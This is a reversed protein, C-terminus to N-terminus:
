FCIVSFWSLKRVLEEASQVQNRLLEIKSQLSNFDLCHSELLEEVEEHTALIESVLPYAYYSPRTRLISLNMLALQDEDETLHLLVNRTGNVRVLLMALENKGSRM